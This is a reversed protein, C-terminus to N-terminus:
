KNNIVSDLIAGVSLVLVVSIIINAILAIILSVCGNMQTLQYNKSIRASLFYALAISAIIQIALLAGANNVLERSRAGVAHNAFILGVAIMIVSYVTYVNIANHILGRFTGRGSLLVKSAFHIFAFWVFISIAGEIASSLGSVLGNGITAVPNVELNLGSSALARIGIQESLLNAVFTAVGIILMYVIVDISAVEWTADDKHLLADKPQKTGTESIEYQIITQVESESVGLISTAVSMAYGDDLLEPNMQFAKILNRKAGVSDNAVSRDMATDILHKARVRQTQGTQKASAVKPKDGQQKSTKQQIPSDDIEKQRQRILKGAKVAFQKIEANTDTKYLASLYKYADESGDKVLLKIARKRDAVNPSNILNIIQQDM